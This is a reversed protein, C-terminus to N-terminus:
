SLFTSFFYILQYNRKLSFWKTSQGRWRSSNLDWYSWYLFSNYSFRLLGLFLLWRWPLRRSIEEDCKGFAIECNKSLKEPDSSALYLPNEM